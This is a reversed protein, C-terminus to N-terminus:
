LKLHSVPLQQYQNQNKLASRQENTGWIVDDLCHTEFRARGGRLPRPGCGTEVSGSQANVWCAWGDVQGLQAGRERPGQGTAGRQEGWTLPWVRHVEKFHTSTQDGCQGASVWWTRFRATVQPSKPSIESRTHLSQWCKPHPPPSGRETEEKDRHWPQYPWYFHLFCQRNGWILSVYLPLRKDSVCILLKKKRMKVTRPDSDHLKFMLGSSTPVSGPVPIQSRSSTLLPWTWQWEEWFYRLNIILQQFIM